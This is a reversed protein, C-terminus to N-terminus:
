KIHYRCRWGPPKCAKNGCPKGDRNIGCCNVLERVEENLSFLNGFIYDTTTAPLSMAAEFIDSVAVKRMTVAASQFVFSLVTFVVIVLNIILTALQVPHSLLGIFVLSSIIVTPNLEIQRFIM